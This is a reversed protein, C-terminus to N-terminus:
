LKVWFTKNDISKKYPKCYWDPNFVKNEHFFKRWKNRYHREAYVRAKGFFWMSFCIDIIQDTEFSGNAEIRKAIEKRFHNNTKQVQFKRELEKDIKTIDLFLYGIILVAISNPTITKDPYIIKM